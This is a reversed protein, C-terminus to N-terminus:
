DPIVFRVTPPPEDASPTAPSDIFDDPVDPVPISLDLTPIPATLRSFGVELLEAMKIDREQGSPAGMIVAIVRRGDRVATAVLCFGAARTFGTKLGDVGRVSGLLQNSNSMEVPAARQLAGFTRRPVSSYRLVDTEAVLVRALTALDRPSTLDSEALARSRPPLGHPSRWTTATLGLARSRANMRELFAERNGSVAHTLAHAADNASRVMLAFLLDEVPFTEGARLWVQTGGMSEDTATATVATTLELAGAKLADHVVLFTMLKTASAPPGVYNAQDEFLVHGDAADIVIAGRYVAHALGLGPLWALLLLSRFL